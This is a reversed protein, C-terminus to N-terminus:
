LGCKKWLAAMEKETAFEGRQVEALAARVETRQENTLVYPSQDDEAMGILIQAADDQAAAPLRRVKEIAHELLKTM